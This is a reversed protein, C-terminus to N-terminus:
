RNPPATLSLMLSNDTKVFNDEPASTVATLQPNPKIDPNNEPASTLQRLENLTHTQVNPKNSITGSLSDGLDQQKIFFLAGLLIIILVALIIVLVIINRNGSHFNTGSNGFLM